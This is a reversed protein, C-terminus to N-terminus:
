FPRDGAVVMREMHRENPWYDSVAYHQVTRNDWLAICDANWRFRCQYEPWSARRVLNDLLAESEDPDLGVIHTPHLLDVFISKRGTEPHTRIVPHLQPPYKERLEALKEESMAQSAYNFGSWFVAHQNQAQLGELRKKMAAPLDDYAAAMDAFLTDGGVDPVKLSRLISIASPEEMWPDDAHWLNEEGRKDAGKMFVTLEPIPGPPLFPHPTLQGWLRGFTLYQDTTLVQGPLLAGEM